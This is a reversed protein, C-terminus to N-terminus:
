QTGAGPQDNRLAAQAWPELLDVIVDGAQDSPHITDASLVLGRRQAVRDWSRGFVYHQIASGITWSVFKSIGGVFAPGTAVGARTQLERLAAHVDLLDAGHRGASVRILENYRQVVAEASSDPDEGLPPLTLCVLRPATAVLEAVLEDYQESFWGERPAQATTEM